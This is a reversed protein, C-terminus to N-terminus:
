VERLADELERIRKLLRDVQADAADREGTVKEIEAKLAKTESIYLTRWDSV